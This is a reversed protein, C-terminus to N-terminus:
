FEGHESFVDYNVHGTLTETPVRDCVGKCGAQNDRWIVDIGARKLIDLLNERSAAKTNTFGAKGLGSFM